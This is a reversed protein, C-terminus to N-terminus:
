RIRSALKVEGSCERSDVTQSDRRRIRGDKGQADARVKRRDECGDLVAALMMGTACAM